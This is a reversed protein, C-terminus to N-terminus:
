CGASMVYSAMSDDASQDIAELTRYGLGRLYSLCRDDVGPNHVNHTELYLLPRKRALVCEAGKLADYEAGEVDIKVFDPLQLEQQRVYDDLSVAPVTVSPQNVFYPSSALYTNANDHISHSLERTGDHDSVAAHIATCNRVGNLEINRKMKSCNSPSAEFAYVRGAAGVLRAALMALFGQHAGLDFVVDGPRLYKAYVSQMNLEWMGLIAENNSTADFTWRYGKLPGDLIKLTVSKRRMVTKLLQLGAARAKRVIM